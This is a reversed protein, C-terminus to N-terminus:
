RGRVLEEDHVQVLILKITEGVGVRFKNYLDSSSHNRLCKESRDLGTGNWRLTTWQEGKFEMGAMTEVPGFWWVVWVTRTIITSRTLAPSISGGSWLTESAVSPKLVSCTWVVFLWIYFPQTVTHTHTHTSYQDAVTLKNLDLNGERCDTLAADRVKWSWYKM